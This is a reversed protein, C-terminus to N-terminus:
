CAGNCGCIQASPEPAALRYAPQPYAPQFAREGGCREVEAAAVETAARVAAAIADDLQTPACAIRANICAEAEALPGPAPGDAVPAGGSSILSFRSLVGPARLTIKAHGIAWGEDQAAKSLHELLTRAWLDGDFGGPARVILTQNLWALAAEARAYRNYDIEVNRPAATQSMWTKILQDMGRGSKASYGAVTASPYRIHLEDLAAQTTEADLLDIKNLAIVDAEELQKAFLYSLDANGNNSSLAALREADVVTMLSGATFRDGYYRRLPRLVTAQLDACSGVAEALLTGVGHDNILDMAVKVLDDFRCCFCGGTVEGTEAASRALQTDVLETGQDNTIVAVRRGDERLRRATELLTTTKGAGLFGSITMFEIM